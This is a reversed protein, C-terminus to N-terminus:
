AEAPVVISERLLRAVLTRGDAPDLGPLQGASRVQGSLLARLADATAAPLTLTRDSLELVVSEGDAPRLRHRLGARVRVATADTV